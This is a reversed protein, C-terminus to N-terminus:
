SVNKAMIQTILNVTSCNTDPTAVQKPFFHVRMDGLGALLHIIFEGGLQRSMAQVLSMGIGHKEELVTLPVLLGNGDDGLTLTVEDM